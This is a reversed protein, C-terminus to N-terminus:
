WRGSYPGSREYPDIAAQEHEREEQLVWAPSGPPPVDEPERYRHHYSERHAYLGADSADHPTSEEIEKGDETRLPKWVHGRWEQMLVSNERLRILGKRVDSNLHNQAIRKNQKTAETIPLHYRDIWKKSWGMVAPKGGGGADATIMGLNVQARVAHLCAAMEDYDLETKKWSALEYLVPDELSWAWIVFAFAARTGLDAGLALFYARLETRGPLDAMATRLDPFGDVDLRVPAYAIEHEKVSHLAYVFRAGERVWRAHWERLLDPDDEAWGNDRIAAGATQEWRIAQAATEAAAEDPFPGTEAGLNDAVFWEGEKWVVAGFFPNDRVTIRHVEWGILPKGDDCTIAYFMGVCDRGPTGTFWCEGAFDVMAGVIVAKYFRELFRFDQAEDVWFVHKALGRLKRFAREEDAGFLDIKSGNSFELELDGSRVSVTVGALDYTDVGPGEIQKGYRQVINVFGSNTDNLWARAEAEIRTSAVYTARFGPRAIARAILERCGGATAGVRRSKKTAKRKAKSTFFAHQKPHYFARLEAALAAILAEPDAKPAPEPTAAQAAAAADADAQAALRARRAIVLDAIRDPDM